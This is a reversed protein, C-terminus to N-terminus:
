TTERRRAFFILGGIGAILMWGAAPLPVSSVPPVFDLTGRLQDGSGATINGGVFSVTGTSGMLFAVGRFYHNQSALITTTALPKLYGGTYGLAANEGNLIALIASDGTVSNLVSTANFTGGIAATTSGALRPRWFALYEAGPVGFFAKQSATLKFVGDNVGRAFSSITAASTPGALVLCTAIATLLHRRM